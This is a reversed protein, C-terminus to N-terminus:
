PNDEANEDGESPDQPIHLRFELSHSMPRDNGRDNFMKHGTSSLASIIQTHKIELLLPSGPLRLQLKLGSGDAGMARHTGLDEHLREGDTAREACPHLPPETVAGM